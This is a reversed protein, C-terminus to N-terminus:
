AFIDNLQRIIERSNTDVVVVTDGQRFFSDGNPIEPTAGHSISVLLINPKLRIEKLPKGINLTHEDVLFELAEAQGDAITHVSLAAGTQNEMARVYRVINNCVLDRPCIVSGLNLSDIISRNGTHGLKTIVQPVGQSAAYLSVIMNMEDIGTLTVLADTKGLAESELLEQNSIDGHIIETDPLLACLERCRAYDKEIIRSSIGSKKLRSALYYSIKSGGCITVSRVRRTLIGLNKLLTTLNQSLATFFVRDGERLVFDGRPASASGDRLVACVLVKCRVISELDMLRVNCLKSGAGVRLEVIETRGKAFTDRRLFGPYKLLRDIETAAQNEPNIVMSLGFINRMRYIQETYEPNRIRGITHLKPNLAHATTCCLLNVEDESTAAILLDADKVGAQLLVDMSACNGHVAFVDYREVTSELVSSNSDIVTIDHGESSLQRTLMSGVKGDGAIIINM